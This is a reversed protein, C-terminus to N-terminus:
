WTFNVGSTTQGQNVSINTVTKSSSVPTTGNFTTYIARVRYTTTTSGRVELRYTGDEYSSTMYYPVGTLTNTSISSPPSFTTSTSAIILVGTQISGSSTTLTGAITGMAGRITFTGGFVLQGQTVTCSYSEPTSSEGSGLVPQVTYAGTSLNAMTFRGNSGSVEQGRAVGDDDFAAVAIGPIPNVGDRTIFGRIMGGQSLMFNVDNTVQGLAVVVSQSSQSVYSSNSNGQNATVNYTGPLLRLLYRGDLLNTDAYDVGAWVRIGPAPIVINAANKVFGSIFGEENPSTLFASHLGSVPWSPVTSSNPVWVTSGATISVTGIEIIYNSSSIFVTWIGTSVGTLTFSAYPPSGIAQATTLSSLGDTASVFAGVAPTAAVVTSTSSGSYRPGKPWMGAAYVNIDVSNNNSDYAPGYTAHVGATSSYRMYVEGVDLGHAQNIATGEQFPPNLSGGGTWGVVDLPTGDSINYLMLAGEGEDTGDEGVASGWVPIINPDAESFRPAFNTMNNGSLSTDWVADAPFSGDGAYITTTNAFLYYGGPAISNTVYDVEIARALPDQSSGSGNERQFKLGVAGNMTWSYTTPNFVEVYEQYFGTAANQTSGVVQSIVLHDKLWAVGRVTGSAMPVMDFDKTQTSNAGVSVVAIQTFYGPATCVLTYSGPPLTIQYNGTTNATDRWGVNEAVNILANPIAPTGLATSRVRGNFAANSMVADPNSMINRIQLNKKEGAQFWSVTVTILKMGTDAATPAMTEINGSVEQALQVYTSRTFLIGGEMIAEQPFYGTDYPFNLDPDYSPASTVLVKYYSQQELVQTKEQALNAALGRSKSFQISKNVTDFVGFIGIVIVSLILMAIILEVISLGASGAAASFTSKNRRAGRQVPPAFSSRGAYPLALIARLFRM